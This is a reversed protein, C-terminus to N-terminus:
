AASRNRAAAAPSGPRKRLSNREAARVRQRDVAVQAFLYDVDVGPETSPSVIAMKSTLTGGGGLGDVQLPHPSGMAALLVADRTAPDSPLDSALFFPGRSTGSRMLVCPIRTQM